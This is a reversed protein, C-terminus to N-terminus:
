LTYNQCKFFYLKRVTGNEQNLIKTLVTEHFCDNCLDYTYMSDISTLNM